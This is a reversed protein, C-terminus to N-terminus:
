STALSFESSKGGRQFKLSRIMQSKDFVCIGMDDISALTKMTKRMIYDFPYRTNLTKLMTTVAVALSFFEQLDLNTGGYSSATNILAWNSFFKPNHKRCITLFQYLIDCDWQGQLSKFITVNSKSSKNLLSSLAHYYTPLTAKFMDSIQSLKRQCLIPSTFGAFDGYMADLAILCSDDVFDRFAVFAPDGAKLDLCKLLRETSVDM